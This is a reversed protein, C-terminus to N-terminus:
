VAKPRQILTQKVGNRVGHEKISAKLTVVEKEALEWVASSNGKYIVVNKETDEFIFIGVVGFKNEVNIVKKLTLTLTVKEGVTGIHERAADIAAQKSAWEIKRANRDAICKRVAAVQKESLKGYNAYAAALSGVFNDKYTKRDDEDVEVGLSLFAEIEAYDEYTKCFTKNANAIIRATTAAAYAAPNDIIVERFTRKTTTAAMM